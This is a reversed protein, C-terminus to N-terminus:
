TTLARLERARKKALKAVAEEWGKPPSRYAAAKPSLRAQRISAISVGLAEALETQTVQRFLLDTAEKFGM